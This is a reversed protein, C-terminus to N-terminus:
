LMWPRLWLITHIKLGAAFCTDAINCAIPNICQRLDNGSCFMVCLINVNIHTLQVSQEYWAIWDGHVVSSHEINQLIRVMEPRESPLSLLTVVTRRHIPSLLRHVHSSQLFTSATTTLLVSRWMLIPPSVLNANDMDSDMGLPSASAADVASINPNGTGIVRCLETGLAQPFHDVYLSHHVNFWKSSIM